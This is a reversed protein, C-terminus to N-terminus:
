NGRDKLDDAIDSAQDKLNSAQDGAKDVGERVRQWLSQAGKNSDNVVNKVANDAADAIGGLKGTAADAGGQITSGASGLGGKIGDGMGSVRSQISNGASDLGGKMDQMGQQAAGQINGLGGKAAGGANELGGKISGLGGKAVGGANELGDKISGLGGRSINGVHDLGGQATDSVNDLGGKISGLGGRAVDDVTDLGRKAVNGGRKTAAWAAGGAAAAGAAAGAGARGVNSLGANSLGAGQATAYATTDDNKRRRSGWAVLGLCAAPVIMLWWLNARSQATPNSEPVGQGTAPAVQNAANAAADTAGQVVNATVDAASQVANGAADTTGQIADGAADAVSQVTNSAASVLGALPNASKLIAQGPEGVAYGLFAAVAPSPEGKYVFSFPQSFPYRPDTPLTKHMPLVRVGNLDDVESVLAYSIGDAGLEKALDATNDTDLQAAGGGTAFKAAQFVPYPALALRTDSVDPRDVLRIAGAPGGVESWDTIEGRFIQAFQESTLSDSFANNEGVIIAIKIRNVDVASLGQASEDASLPRSIAALDSDGDILAQIARDAGVADVHVTAGSNYKGEFDAKLVDSILNMADSGSSVRLTIDNPISTPVEFATTPAAIAAFRAFPQHPAVVILLAVTAALSFTSRSRLM